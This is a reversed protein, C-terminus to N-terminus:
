AFFLRLDMWGVEGWPVAMPANSQVRALSIGSAMLLPMGPQNFIKSWM